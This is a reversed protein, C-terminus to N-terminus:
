PAFAGQTLFLTNDGTTDADGDAGGDFIKVQDLGWVSRRGERAVDSLVADVTTTVNCAGGEPGATSACSVNFGLPSDVATAPSKLSTGNLHDTIRLGLVARLEGTYDSLDSKKRVDTFGVTVEVDGQDGNDFNIPSEGLVKLTVRGAANAPKGNADPTGVTLFNSSQVPPSCSPVALPAGHAENGSTCEDYAPVLTINIPSAGKPRAYGAYPLASGLSGTVTLAPYVDVYYRKQVGGDLARVLMGRTMVGPGTSDKAGDFDMFDGNADVPRSGFSGVSDLSVITGSDPQGPTANLTTQGPAALWIAVAGPPFHGPAVQSLPATDTLSGDAEIYRGLRIEAVPDPNDDILGTLEEAVRNGATWGVSEDELAHSHGHPDTTCDTPAYFGPTDYLFSWAPKLYGLLDDALGVQFRYKSSSHWTPVPPNARNPCSADEIGWPGGLMLAPFSEAPDGIFQLDPGVDLVAVTTHVENGARGNPMCNTYLQREGFIGAEGAALFLNNELPVCFETRRGDVTGLPIPKANALQAAVHDAIRTGTAEIQPFCGTVSGPGGTESQCEPAQATTLHPDTILDEMSGIDAAVFMAM